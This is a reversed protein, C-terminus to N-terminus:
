NVDKWNRAKIREIEMEKGLWDWLAEKRAEKRVEEEWGIGFSRKGM